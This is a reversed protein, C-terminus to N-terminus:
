TVNSAFNLILNMDETTKEQFFKIQPPEFTKIRCDYCNSTRRRVKEGFPKGSRKPQYWYPHFNIADKEDHCKECIKTEEGSPTIITGNQRM